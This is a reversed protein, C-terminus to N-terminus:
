WLHSRAAESLTDPMFKAANLEKLQFSHNRIEIIKYDALDLGIHDTPSYTLTGESGVFDKVNNEIYDRIAEKDTWGVANFTNKIIGVVTLAHAAVGSFVRNYKAEFRAKMDLLPAKIPDDDPLQECVIPSDCCFQVGEIEQGGADLLAFYGFAPEGIVPLSVGIKNLAKILTIADTGLLIMGIADANIREVEAKIKTAFATMDLQGPVVQDKLVVANIGWEKAYDRIYYGGYAFLNQLDTVVVINDYNNYKAIALVAQGQVKGSAVTNFTYKYFQQQWAADDPVFAILPMKERECVAMAQAVVAGSSPGVILPIDPMSTLKTFAANAKAADSATDEPVVEIPHGQIGGEANLKEIELLMGDRTDLGISSLAGTLDSVLGIKIPELNAPGGSTATTQGTGTTATTQPAATSATTQPAATTETTATEGCGVAAVAVMLAVMLLAAFLTGKTAIRNM